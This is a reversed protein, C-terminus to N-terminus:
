SAEGQYFMRTLEVQSGNGSFQVQSAYRHLIQLGRGGEGLPSPVADRRNRWDFGRGGDAIRIKMGGAVPLVECDIEANRRDGAGHVVANVLAERLLLEIAFRERRPLEALLGARLESCIQDVEERAAALKRRVGPQVNTM